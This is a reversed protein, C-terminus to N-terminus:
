EIKTLGKKKNWFLDMGVKCVLITLTLVFMGLAFGGIVDSIWHVNFYVRSFGVITFILINAIVFLKRFFKNKFDERFAYAILAFLIISMTAHGSPFSLDHMEIVANAPRLRGIIEKIWLDSLGGITASVLLVVAYFWRKMHALLAFTAAVLIWYFYYVPDGITTFFYMIKDSFANYLLPVKENILLDLKTILRTDVVDQAMKSFVYLSAINLTLIHLHYKQFIHKKRNIFGYGWGIFVSIVIAGILIQGAYHSAVEYSKGFIYGLIVFTVAWMIGGTINYISFKKVPVETAGAVFPAFARTLQNFRGIIVAKGTHNHMIEKTKKYYEEKFFFYKGYKTLFNHGYKRGVAYGLYDGIIAGMSSIWLVAWLDLIGFKAFVGGFIVIAQGPAFIGFFPTAELIAVILIIWYGWHHLFPEPMNVIQAALQDFFHM